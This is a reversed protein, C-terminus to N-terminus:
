HIPAEASNKNISFPSYKVYTNWNYKAPLGNLKSPRKFDVMVKSNVSDEVKIMDNYFLKVNLPQEVLSAVELEKWIDSALAAIDM